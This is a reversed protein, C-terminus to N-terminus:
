ASRSRQRLSQGNARHQLRIWEARQRATERSELSCEVTAHWVQPDVECMEALYAAEKSRLWIVAPISYYTKASAADRWAQEFIAAVIRMRYDTM